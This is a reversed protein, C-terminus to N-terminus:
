KRLFNIQNKDEKGLFIWPIVAQKRQHFHKRLRKLNMGTKLDETKSGRHPTACTKLSMQARSKIVKFVPFRHNKNNNIFM